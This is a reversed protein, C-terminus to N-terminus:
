NSQYTACTQRRHIIPAIVKQFHSVLWSFIRLVPMAIPQAITNATNSAAHLPWGAGVAVGTEVGVIARSDVFVGVGIGLVTEPGVRVGM